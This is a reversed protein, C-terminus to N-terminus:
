PMTIRKTVSCEQLVQKMIINSAESISLFTTSLDRIIAANSMSCDRPRNDEFAFDGVSVPALLTKPKSFASAVQAALEYRSVRENGSVNYLGQINSSTALTILVDIYNDLFIPSRYEDYFLQTVTNTTLNTVFKDFFTKRSTKSIGYVLSTRAICFDSSESAVYYEAELKTQGYVCIPRATEQESSFPKDGSHVLDTSIYILRSGISSIASVVNKVGSVNVRWAEDRHTACYNSDTIAAAHIVVEPEIETLMREVSRKNTIDLNIYSESSLKRNLFTSFVEHKESSRAHAFFNSGIYGSGGIVVMRTM